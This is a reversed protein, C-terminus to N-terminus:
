CGGSQDRRKGWMRRQLVRSAGGLAGEEPIHKEETDQNGAECASAAEGLGM